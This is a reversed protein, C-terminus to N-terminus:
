AAPRPEEIGLMRKLESTPVVMRRGFKLVKLEGDNAAKFATGRGIGLIEAAEPVPVTPRDQWAKKSPKRAMPHEKEAM